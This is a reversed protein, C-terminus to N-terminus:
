LSGHNTPIISEIDAEFKEVYEIVRLEVIRTPVDVARVKSDDGRGAVRANPLDARFKVPLPAFWALWGVPREM